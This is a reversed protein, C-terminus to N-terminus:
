CSRLRPAPMFTSPVANCSYTADPSFARRVCIDRRGRAAAVAAILEAFM